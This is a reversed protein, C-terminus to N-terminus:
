DRDDDRRRRERGDWENVRTEIRAVAVATAQAEKQIGELTRTIAAMGQTTAQHQERSQKSLEEGQRTVAEEVWEIRDTNVELTRATEENRQRDVAYWENLLAMLDGKTRAFAAVLLKDFLPANDEHKLRRILLRDIGALLLFSALVSSSVGVGLLSWLFTPLSVVSPVAPLVPPTQLM